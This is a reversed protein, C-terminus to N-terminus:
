VVPNDKVRGRLGLDRRIELYVHEAKKLVQDRDVEANQLLEFLRNMQLVVQKSGWLRMQNTLTKHMGPELMGSSDNKVSSYWGVFDNYVMVKGSSKLGYKRISSQISLSGLLIGFIMLTAIMILIAKWDNSLSQWQVSLFEYGFLIVYGAAGVMGALIVFALITGIVKM